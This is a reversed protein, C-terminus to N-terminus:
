GFELKGATKLEGLKAQDIRVDEFEQKAHHLLFRIPEARAGIDFYYLKYTM